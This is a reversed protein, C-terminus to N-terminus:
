PTRGETLDDARWAPDFDPHDSYPQALLKLTGCPWTIVGQEDGPQPWDGCTACYLGSPQTAPPHLKLIARKAAVEALVRAPDWRAIHELIAGRHLDPGCPDLRWGGEDAAGYLCCACGAVRWPAALAAAAARAVAEDEALRAQMFAILDPATM